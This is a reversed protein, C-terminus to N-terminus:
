VSVATVKVKMSCVLRGDLENIAKCSKGVLQVGGLSAGALRM